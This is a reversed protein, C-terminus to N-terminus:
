EVQTSKANPQRSPLRGCRPEGRGVWSARQKRSGRACLQRGGRQHCARTRAPPPAARHRDRDWVSQAASTSHGVVVVGGSRSHRAGDSKAQTATATAADSRSQACACLNACRMQTARANARQRQKRRWLRRAAPRASRPPAPSQQQAPPQYQAGPGHQVAARNHAPSRHMMEVTMRVVMGEVAMQVVMGVATGAAVGMARRTVM